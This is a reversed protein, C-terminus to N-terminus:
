ILRFRHVVREAVELATAEGQLANPDQSADTPTAGAVEEPWELLTDVADRTTGAVPSVIVREEGLLRNLLSSKGVNPRGIIALRIERPATETETTEAQEAFHTVLADLLDGVGDGHEALVAVVEDFGFQYFEGADAELRTADAKNAAILVPKGTARL